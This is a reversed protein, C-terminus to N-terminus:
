ALERDAILQRTLGDVTIECAKANAARLERLRGKGEGKRALESARKWVTKAAM